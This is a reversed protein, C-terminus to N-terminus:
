TDSYELPFRVTFISGKGVTSEVEIEGHHLEVLHKVIALGLGTGGSNRSRAKDVRYFREFIRPQDREPIGIGTDMVQLMWHRDDQKVKVTVKGGVPTYNMANALLNVLIQRVCDTDMKVMLPAVDTLLRLNKAQMQEILTEVVDHVVLQVSVVEMKISVQKSEIKSLDLLDSVLRQLRLGEKYIIQLFEKCTDPDKRAGDLLTETFGVISTLPTKLEHSVNAVFDRRLEELRRFATLDRFIAVIGFQQSNEEIPTLSAEIIREQPYFLPIELRVPINSEMCENLLPRLNYASLYVDYHEGVMQEVPLDFMSGFARNVLKIYGHYDVMMLGTDLSEIVSNMRNTSEQLDLIKKVLTEM